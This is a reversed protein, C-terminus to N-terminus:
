GDIYGRQLRKRTKTSEKIELYRANNNRIENKLNENHKLVVLIIALIVVLAISVFIIIKKKM